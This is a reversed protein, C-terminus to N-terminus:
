REVFIILDGGEHSIEVQESIAENRISICSNFILNVKELEYKLGASTVEKVESMPILSIIKGLSTQIICNYPAIFYSQVDDFFTINLDNKYKTAVSLNGLFHDQEKGSAGYVHIESYKKKIELLSKEFDTFNQDPLEILTIDSDISDISDLDGLVVDPFLNNKVLYNYAGDACFIADYNVFDPYYKPAEGNLFLLAKM